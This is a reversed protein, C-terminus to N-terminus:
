SRIRTTVIIQNVELLECNHCMAHQPDRLSLVYLDNRTTDKFHVYNHWCSKRKTLMSASSCVLKNNYGFLLNYDHFSTPLYTNINIQLRFPRHSSEHIYLDIDDISQLFYRHKPASDTAKINTTIFYQETSSAANM